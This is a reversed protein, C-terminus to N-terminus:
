PSKAPAWSLARNVALEAPGIRCDYCLIEVGAAVARELAAAYEPDIDAAIALRRCDIRQVIYLMVARAGQRVVASLEDLHRAGRETVSDPFEALGPRRRLHVNKVEVYCPPRGDEELLFDVRSRAGYRVERRLGAYVLERITGARIAEQALRNPQMPNIGVLTPADGSRDEILEWNHKLRRKPNDSLSLWVPWGPESVGLMRGTNPCHATVVSGDALRVDAFFRKYRQVLTGPVLPPDFKVAPVYPGHATM